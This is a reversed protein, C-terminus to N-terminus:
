GGLRKFYKKPNLFGVLTAFMFGAATLAALAIKTTDVVQEVRIGSQDAVILAVPRAFTRGGGGGGGGSGSEGSRGPKGSEPQEGESGGSGFGIGYGFGALVEAAPIVIAGGLQVPEGYVASVDAVALFQDMTDQLMELPALGMRSSTEAKNIEESM